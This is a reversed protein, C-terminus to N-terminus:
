FRKFGDLFTELKSQKTKKYGCFTTKKFYEISRKDNIQYNKNM